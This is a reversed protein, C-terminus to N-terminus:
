NLDALMRGFAEEGVIPIGYSAAKRAKGSLSDPDAAVVLAVHKTVAPHPVLGAAAARACWTERAAAMEGTFVVRDGKSLVFRPVSERDARPAADLARAVADDPLGLLRAVAVLDQREDDTVVGDAMAAGALDGLYSRHLEDAVSRSIGLEAAVAALADHERASLHRDLLARDLLALYETHVSSGTSTPLHETLRTLFSQDRVAAVGRLAPEVPRAPIAPWRAVAALELPQVWPGGVPALGLCHRLIESAAVADALAAHADVLPIGLQQCCGALARPATPVLEGALRMTCLSTPPAIPVDHGMRAFAAHVFRADFSVNHAVFVRGALLEVLTGAVDDFRPAHRVDAATIGHVAQPGLDRDPNLLTTWSAEFSGDPTLHVVGIEVIRDQGGPFLGTTEVDVVAFGAM